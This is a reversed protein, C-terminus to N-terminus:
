HIVDCLSSLATLYSDITDALAQASDYASKALMVRVELKEGLEILQMQQTRAFACGQILFRLLQESRYSLLMEGADSLTSWLWLDNDLMGVKLSPLNILKLEITGYSDFNGVQREDCGSIALADRLLDAVHIGHM